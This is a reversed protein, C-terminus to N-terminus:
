PDRRRGSRRTGPAAARRRMLGISSGIAGGAGSCSAGAGASARRKRTSPISQAAHAFVTSFATAASSPTLAAWTDNPAPVSVTSPSAGAARMVPATLRAPYRARGASRRPRAVPWAGNQRRSRRATDVVAATSRSSRATADDIAEAGRATDSGSYRSEIATPPQGIARAAATATRRPLRSMFTSIASAATPATPM